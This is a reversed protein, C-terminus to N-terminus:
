NPAVTVFLLAEGSLVAAMALYLLGNAPHMAQTGRSGWVM